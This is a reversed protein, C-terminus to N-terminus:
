SWGFVVRGTLFSINIGFETAVDPEWFVGALVRPRVRIWRAGWTPTYSGGVFVGVGGDDDSDDFHAYVSTHLGVEHQLRSSGDYRVFVGARLMEWLEEGGM